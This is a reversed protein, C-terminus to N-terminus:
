LPYRERRDVGGPQLWLEVTVNRCNELKLVRSRSRFDAAVPLTVGNLALTLDGKWAGPLFYLTGGDRLKKVAGDITGLAQRVSHGDAQDDGGPSVFYLLPSYPAPARDRYVSDGQPRYDHNAPDVLERDESFNKERPRVISNKAAGFYGTDGYNFMCNEILRSYLAEGAM